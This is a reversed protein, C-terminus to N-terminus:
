MGYKNQIPASPLPKLEYSPAKVKSENAKAREAAKLEPHCPVLGEDFVQLWTKGTMNDIVGSAAVLATVRSVQRVWVDSDNTIRRNTCESVAKLFYQRTRDIENPELTDRPDQCRNQFYTVVGYYQRATYGSNGSAMHDSVCIAVEAIEPRVGYYAFDLANASCAGMAALVFSATKVTFLKKLM